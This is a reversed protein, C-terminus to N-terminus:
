GNPRSSGSRVGSNSVAQSTAAPQTVIRMAAADLPVIATHLPLAGRAPPADGQAAPPNPAAPSAIAVPAAAQTAAAPQAAAAKSGPGDANAPAPVPQIPPSPVAMAALQRRSRLGTALQVAPEPAAVAPKTVPVSAAVVPTESVAARASVGWTVSSTFIGSDPKASNPFLGDGGLPQLLLTCGVGALAVILPARLSRGASPSASDVRPPPAPATQM